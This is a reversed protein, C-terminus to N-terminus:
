LGTVRLDYGGYKGASPPAGPARSVRVYYVGKALRVTLESSLYEPIALRADPAPNAANPPCSNVTVNVGVVFRVERGCQGNYNLWTFKWPEPGKNTQVVVRQVWEIHNDNVAASGDAFPVPTVGDDMLVELYTDAGDNLNETNIRFDGPLDVQLGFLDVDGEPFLTHGSLRRGTGPQLNSAWHQDVSRFLKDVQAVTDDAGREDDIISLLRDSRLHNRIAAEEAPFLDRYAKWFTTFTVAQPANPDILSPLHEIVRLIGDAGIGRWRNEGNAGSVGGTYIDWLAVAVSVESTTHKALKKFLRDDVAVAAQTPLRSDPLFAKPTSLEYSFRLTRNNGETLSFSDVIVARLGSRNSFGNPNVDRVLASFFNAWGESWALRADQNAGNIFHNGGPSDDKSLNWLAFHGFEHLVIDDDYEDSDSGSAAGKVNIRDTTQGGARHKFFTGGGANFQWTLNLNPLARNWVAKAFGFGGVAADLINFAGGQNRLLLQARLTTIDAELVQLTGVPALTGRQANHLPGTELFYPVGSGPDLVSILSGGGAPPEAVSKLRLTINGTPSLQTTVCFNGNSGTTGTGIVNGGARLEVKAFRVPAMRRGTFGNNDYLKDEYVANGSFGIGNASLPDCVAAGGGGGGGM